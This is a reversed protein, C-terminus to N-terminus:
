VDDVQVCAAGPLEWCCVLIMINPSQYMVRFGRLFLVIDVGGRQLDHKHEHVICSPPVSPEVRGFIRLISIGSRDVDWSREWGMERRVVEQVSGLGYLFETAEDAKRTTAKGGRGMEQKM